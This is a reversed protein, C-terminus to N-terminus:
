LGVVRWPLESLALAGRGCSGAGLPFPLTVRWLSLCVLCPPTAEEVREEEEEREDGGETALRVAIFM